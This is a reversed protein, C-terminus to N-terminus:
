EPDKSDSQPKPQPPSVEAEVVPLGKTYKIKGAVRRMTLVECVNKKCQDDGVYSIHIWKAKKSFDSWDELILQKFKLNERIWQCVPLHDGGNCVFDAALGKLHDSTKAGGVATNVRHSRFGSTIRVQGFKIRIPDLIDTCLEELHKISVPDPDNEAKVNTRTLEALTFFQSLQM